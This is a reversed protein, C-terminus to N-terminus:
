LTGSILSLFYQHVRTDDTLEPHFATALLKGQQVAVIKGELESLTDVEDGVQSVIPARIFVGRVAREPTPRFLLDAEFSEIQRGFANRRVTIDMLGLRPQESGEIHKALLIMGACTGYIPMGQAARARIAEDLGYRAMLKGITTSEGGPIILADVQALDGVKRVETAEVNLRALTALHEAFDGQLALVGVRM